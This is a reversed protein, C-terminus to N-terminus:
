NVRAPGVAFGKAIRAEESLVAGDVNKGRMLDAIDLVGQLGDTLVIDGNPLVVSFRSDTLYPDEGLARFVETLAGLTVDKGAILRRATKKWPQDDNLPLAGKKELLSLVKERAQTPLDSKGKIIM